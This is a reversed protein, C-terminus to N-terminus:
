NFDSLNFSNYRIVLIPYKKGRYNIRKNNIQKNESPDIGKAHTVIFRVKGNSPGLPKLLIGSLRCGGTFKKFITSASSISKTIELFCENLSGPEVYILFDCVKFNTRQNRKLFKLALIEGKLIIHPANISNLNIKVGKERCVKKIAGTCQGKIQNIKSAM